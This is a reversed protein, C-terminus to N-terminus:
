EAIEHYNLLQHTGYKEILGVAECDAAQTAEYCLEAILHHFIEGQLQEFTLRASPDDLICQNITTQMLVFRNGKENKKTNNDYAKPDDRTYLPEAHMLYYACLAFAYVESTSSFKKWRADSDAWGYSTLGTQEVGRDISDQDKTGGFDGLLVNRCADLMINAPKLDRHLIGHGHMNRVALCLQWVM